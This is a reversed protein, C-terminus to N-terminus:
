STRHHIHEAASSHLRPAACTCMSSMSHKVNRFRASSDLRAGMTMKAVLRPMQWTLEQRAAVWINRVHHKCVFQQAPRAHRLRNAGLSQARLKCHSSTCM